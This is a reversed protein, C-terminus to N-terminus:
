LLSPSQRLQGYFCRNNHPCYFKIFLPLPSCRQPHCIRIIATIFKFQGSPHLLLLSVFCGDPLLAMKTTACAVLESVCFFSEEPVKNSKKVTIAAVPITIQNITIATKPQLHTPRYLVCIM